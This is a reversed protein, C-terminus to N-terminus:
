ADFGNPWHRTIEFEWDSYKTREKTLVVRPPDTSYDATFYWGDKSNLFKAVRDDYSGASHDGIAYPGHFRLTTVDRITLKALGRRNYPPLPPANANAAKKVGTLFFLDDNLVYLRHSSESTEVTFPGHFGPYYRYSGVERDASCAV